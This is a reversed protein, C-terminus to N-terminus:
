SLKSKPFADDLSLPKSIYYGQAYGIGYKMLLDLSAQNEVFEAVTKKGFGNAIQSMARVIIQDDPNDNLRQIFSGDIKLYDVPLHKLYYFSSFGIGFDDLAFQCGLEKIALMLNNAVTFDSVAATETIEFMVRDTRVQYRELVRCIHPLLQPDNFAHGSLNISFAVDFGNNNVEHLTRIARSVVLRDVAHILGSREATQIFQTPGTISGDELAIRLLVEYHSIRASAIEMIPQFYLIIDQNKLIQNAKNKWYLRKRMREQTEGHEPSFIRWSGRGGQKAQQMALDAKAMLDSSSDGESPFLMIGISASVRPTYEGLPFNINQLHQNISEAIQQVEPESTERLLLAFDDDGLRAIVDASVIQKLLTNAVVKLLADGNRYGSADNIEKFHDLDCILLAGRKGQRRAASVAATLEERFRKRNALETLSDHDAMWALRSEAGMRETVDLGVSLMAPTAASESSKDLRSHYWTVNRVTGDKCQILSDHQLIEHLWQESVLEDKLLRRRLESLDHPSFLEIFDRGTLESSSYGTLAQAFRNAMLIQGHSDLTFILIQSIDLLNAIFARESALDNMRQTLTQSHEEVQHELEEMHEALTIATTNLMDTEDDVFNSRSQATIKERLAQFEGNALLPLSMTLMVLRSMPAWLLFLLLLEALLWGGIGVAIVRRTAQHIEALYDSIDVILLFYAAGSGAYRPMASLLVRYEREIFQQQMIEEPQLSSYDVTAAIQKLLSLNRIRHTLAAIYANWTSIVRDHDIKKFKDADTVIVGIDSDAIRNLRLVEDSLISGILLAGLYRGNEAMIPVVAYQICQPDCDIAALESRNGSNIQQIAHRVSASLTDNGPSIGRALLQNSQDYIGLLQLSWDFELTAWHPATFVTKIAESDGAEVAQRIEPLAAILNGLRTLRVLSHSILDEANRKHRQYTDQLYNDFQGTLSIYSLASIAVSVGVLVLSTLLLAKWKLSFFRRKTNVSGNKDM